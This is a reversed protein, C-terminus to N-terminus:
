INNINLSSTLASKNHRKKSRIKSVMNILKGKIYLICNCLNLDSGILVLDVVFHLVQLVLQLLALHVFEFFEPLGRRGGGL